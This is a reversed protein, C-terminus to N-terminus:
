PITSPVCLEAQNNIQLDAQSANPAGKVKYCVLHDTPRLISEGNKDTAVCLASPKKVEVQRNGSDDFQDDIQVVQPSFPTTNKTIKAKLCRYHDVV